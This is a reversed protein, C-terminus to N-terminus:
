AAVKAFDDGKDLRAKVKVAEEYTKVLIHRSKVQEGTTTVTKALEDQLKRRLLSAEVYQRFQTESMGTNKQLNGLFEKRRDQFGQFTLPTSTPFPTETPGTTPTITPTTPTVPRTSSPAATSTRTVTPITTATGTATPTPSPGATPTPTARQYGFETEIQKDVEDEAVVIGRKKAEQRVLEEDIMTELSGRPMSIIQTGLQQAQQELQPKFFSLSPDQNVTQLQNLVQQYQGMLNSSDFKIRTQYDRVSMNTGNVTAIPSDLKAINERYYGVGLILAILLAVGGLAYYLVRERREESVRRVQQKRTEDRTRRAPKPM